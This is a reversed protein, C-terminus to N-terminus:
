GARIRPDIAVHVVDVSLNVVIYIMAIVTAVSVIAPFDLSTASQFAYRGVGPWSFVTEAIVTGSLLSGFALGIYTVTPILANRLAHRYLLLQEGLGKARATRIYDQAIVELMSSRTVRVIYAIQHVGLVLAPLGLHKLSNVMVDWRGALVSDITLLGTMTPPPQMGTDLRGPPPFWGLRAYFVYLALLALWFIPASAGILTTARVVRDVSREHSAASVVGLPIGLLVSFLMATLALEVTAPLYERLDDIVPRHSRISIGFNGRAIHGLYDLYQQYLPRDLGWEQRFARVIEPNGQAADSLNAAVPDSPVLHSIVFTALTVGITLPIILLLRRVIYAQITV